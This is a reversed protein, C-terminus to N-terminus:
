VASIAMILAESANGTGTGTLGGSTGVSVFLGSQSYPTGIRQIVSGSFPPSATDLSGSQGVWISQGVFGSFNVAPSLPARGAIYMQAVDGSLVNDMVVGEAPMRGSVAAMAIRLRGSQSIQVARGGSVMEEVTFFDDVLIKGQQAGGGQLLGSALHGSGIQGPAINGSTIADNGIHGSRVEGSLLGPVNHTTM